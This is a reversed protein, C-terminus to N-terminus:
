WGGLKRTDPTRRPVEKEEPDKFPMVRSPEEEKEGGEELALEHGGVIDLAGGDWFGRFTWRRGGCWRRSPHEMLMELQVRGQGEEFRGRRQSPFPVGDELKLLRSKVGEDM